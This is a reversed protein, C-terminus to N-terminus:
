FSVIYYLLTSADTKSCIDKFQALEDLYATLVTNDKLKNYFYQAAAEQGEMMRFSLAYILNHIDKSPNIWKQWRCWAAFYDLYSKDIRTGIPANDLAIMINDIMGDKIYENFTLWDKQKSDMFIRVAYLPIAISFTNTHFENTMLYELSESVLSSISEDEVIVRLSYFNLLNWLLNNRLHEVRDYDISYSSLAELVEPSFLSNTTSQSVDVRDLGWYDPLYCSWVNITGGETTRLVGADDSQNAHISMSKWHLVSAIENVTAFTADIKECEENIRNKLLNTYEYYVGAYEYHRSNVLTAYYWVSLSVLMSATAPSYGKKVLSSALESSFDLHYNLLNATIYSWADADKNFLTKLLSMRNPTLESRGM